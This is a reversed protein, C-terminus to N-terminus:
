GKFVGKFQDLLPQKIKQLEEVTKEANVDVIPTYLSKVAQPEIIHIFEIEQPNIYYLKHAWFTGKSKCGEIERVFHCDAVDAEVEIVEKSNMKIKAKM